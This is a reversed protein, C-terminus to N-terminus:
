IITNSADVRVRAAGSRPTALVVDVVILHSRVRVHLGLYYVLVHVVDM